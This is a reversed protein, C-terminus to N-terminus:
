GAAGGALLREYLDSMRRVPVDQHWDRVLLEYAREALASRRAPDDLLAAIAAAMAPSDGFPVLVGTEGDLVVERTGVVDTAVVPLRCAMAEMVVRPVGERRSPLCLLDSAWLVSTVDKVEGAFIVRDAIGEEEAQRRLDAEDPGSGALVLRLRARGTLRAVASLLHGHHKREVLRAVCLVVEADDDLGLAARVEERPRDPRAHKEIKIGNGVLVARSSPVIRAQVASELDERNQFLVADGARAAAAEMVAYATRKPGSPAADLPSYRWTHVSPVGRLRASIRGAIGHHANHTHVLAVDHRGLLRHVDRIGRLEERVSARYPLDIELLPMEHELLRGEWGDPQCAVWINWGQSRLGNIQDFAIVSLTHANGVHLIVHGNAPM